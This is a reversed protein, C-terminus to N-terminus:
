NISQESLLRKGNKTMGKNAHVHMYNNMHQVSARLGGQPGFVAGITGIKYNTLNKEPIPGNYNDM